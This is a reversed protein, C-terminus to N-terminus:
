DHGEMRAILRQAEQASLVIGGTYGHLVIYDYYPSGVGLKNALQKAVMCRQDSANNKERMVEESKARRVAVKEPDHQGRYPKGNREIKKETLLPCSEM